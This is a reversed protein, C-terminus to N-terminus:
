QRDLRELFAKANKSVYEEKAKKPGQINYEKIKKNLELRREIREKQRDASELIILGIDDEIAGVRKEFRNSNEKSFDTVANTFSAIKQQLDTLSIETKERM